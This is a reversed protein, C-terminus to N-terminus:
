RLLQWFAIASSAAVNLSDVGRAMPIIVSRECADLARRTLGTGETGFVLARREERGARGDRGQPGERRLSPDDLPVADPTLALALCTFGQERLGILTAEPWADKEARAWPVKLVCGMSVRVARRSFPDACRPSLVVADVGLAAANRFIAGVNTVDVLDELVAVSRAGSVVDAVSRAAPRRMCCLLGRTLRYGTLREIQQHPLVYAPVPADVQADARADVQALVERSAALDHEDILFSLPEAGCELAVEVVMRSEAIFLGRGVELRERLQRDNLRAFVKLREDDLSDVWVFEVM